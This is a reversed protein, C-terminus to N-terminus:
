VHCINVWGCCNSSQDQGAAGRQWRPRRWWLHQTSRIPARWWTRGFCMRWHQQQHHPNQEVHKLQNGVDAGPGVCFARPWAPPFGRWVGRSWLFYGASISFFRAWFLVAAWKMRCYRNQHTSPWIPHEWDIAPYLLNKIICVISCAYVRLICVDESCDVCDFRM